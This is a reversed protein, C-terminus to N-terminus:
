TFLGFVQNENQTRYERTETDFVIDNSFVLKQTKRKM